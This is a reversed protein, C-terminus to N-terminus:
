NGCNPCPAPMAIGILTAGMWLEVAWGGERLAFQASTASDYDNTHLEQLRGQDIWRVLYKM